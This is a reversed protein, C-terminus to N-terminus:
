LVIWTKKEQHRSSKIDKKKRDKGTRYDRLSTADCEFLSPSKSLRKDSSSLLTNNTNQAVEMAVGELSRVCILPTGQLSSESEKCTSCMGNLPDNHDINPFRSDREGDLRLLICSKDDKKVRPM